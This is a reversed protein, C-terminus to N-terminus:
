VHARGIKDALRRSAIIFVEQTADDACNEPVGFRRVIRWVDRFHAHLMAAVRANTEVNAPSKIHTGSERDPIHRPEAGGIASAECVNGSSAGADFAAGALAMESSMAKTM